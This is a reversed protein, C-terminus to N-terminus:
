RKRPKNKVRKRPKQFLRRHRKITGLPDYGKVVLRVFRLTELDPIEPNPEKLLQTELQM